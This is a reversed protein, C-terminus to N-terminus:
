NIITPHESQNRNLKRWYIDDFQVPIISGDHKEFIFKRVIAQISKYATVDVQEITKPWSAMDLPYCAKLMDMMKTDVAANLWRSIRQSKECDPLHCYYVTVKLVVDLTKAVQGFSAPGSKKIVLGNKKKEALIIQRVGWKCFRLHITKFDEESEAIFIKQTEILIQEHLKRNSGKDFLRIMASFGLGMDVINELKISQPEDQVYRVINV